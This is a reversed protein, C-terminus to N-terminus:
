KTDHPGGTGLHWDPLHLSETDGFSKKLEKLARLLLNQVASVSRNMREAIEKMQLAEIRALVIVERHDASLSALAERLREFREGRRAAKSATTEEDAGGHHHRDLEFLRESRYRDAVHLVFNESITRLWSLFADEGRWEFRALSGYAKAFTEQVVDDVDIKSQLHAGIRSGISERLRGDFRQVVEDFAARDGSKAAILLKHTPISGQM